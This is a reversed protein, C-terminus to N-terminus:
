CDNPRCYLRACVDLTISERYLEYASSLFFMERAGPRVFGSPLSRPLHARLLLPVIPAHIRM